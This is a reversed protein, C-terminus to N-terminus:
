VGSIVWQLRWLFVNVWHFIQSFLTDDLQSIRFLNFLLHERLDSVFFYIYLYYYIWAWFTDSTQHTWLLFRIILESIVRDVKDFYDFFSTFVLNLTLVHCFLWWGNINIIVAINDSLKHRSHNEVLWPSFEPNPNSILIQTRMRVTSSSRHSKYNSPLHQM